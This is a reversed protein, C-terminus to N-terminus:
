GKAKFLQAPTLRISHVKAFLLTVETDGFTSPMVAMEAQIITQMRNTKAARAPYAYKTLM